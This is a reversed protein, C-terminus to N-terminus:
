ILLGQQWITMAPLGFPPSAIWRRRVQGGFSTTALSLKAEIAIVAREPIAAFVTVHPEMSRGIVM